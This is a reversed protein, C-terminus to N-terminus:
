RRLIMEYCRPKEDETSFGMYEKEIIFGMKKYLEVANKNDVIVCLNISEDIHDNIFAALIRKGIGQNRWSSEVCVNLISVGDGHSVDDSYNDNFYQKKAMNLKTVDLSIDLENAVDLLIDYNWQLTGRNWLVIGVINNNNKAIFLNNLCFMSDLNRKYVSTLIKVCNKKGLNGEGFMAPYIYPDTDYVLAAISRYQQETLSIGNELQMCVINDNSM